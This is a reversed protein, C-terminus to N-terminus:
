RKKRKEERRKSKKRKKPKSWRPFNAESEDWRAGSTVGNIVCGAILTGSKDLRELADRIVDLTSADYRMVFVASDAV